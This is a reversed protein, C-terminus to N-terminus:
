KHGGGSSWGSGSNSSWSRSSGSSNNSSLNIMTTVFVIVIAWMIYNVQNM